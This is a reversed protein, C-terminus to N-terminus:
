RATSDPALGLVEAPSGARRLLGVALAFAPDYRDRWRALARPDRAAVASWGEVERLILGGTRRLLEGSVLVQRRELAVRVAEVVAAEGVPARPGAAVERLAPVLEPLNPGLTRLLTLEAETQRPARVVTDPVVSGGGRVTRGAETRFRPRRLASDLPIISDAQIVRGAPTAWRTTSIRMVLGDGLPFEEQSAGRGFTPTGVVLARDHDQLAGAVVEAADATGGGVLVGLMLDAPASRSSRARVTDERRGHLLLVPDDRRLFFSAIEVAEDLDGGSAIRLDLVLRRAGAARLTEVGRRIAEAAGPGLLAARLYWVGDGVDVPEGVALARPRGRILTFELVQAIGPRRIVIRVPSGPPGALEDAVLDLANATVPRQGVEIVQDGSELGANLAAGEPLLGLVFVLGRRAALRLGLGGPDAPRERPEGAPRIMAFEDDLEGMLGRAARHYLETEPLSDVGFRRIHGLVQEFLRTPRLAPSPTAAQRLLVGGGAAGGLALTVGLIWSTRAKWRAPTM